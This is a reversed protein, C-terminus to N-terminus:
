QIVTEWNADPDQAFFLYAKLGSGGDMSVGNPKSATNDNLGGKFVVTMTKGRLAAPIYVHDSAGKDNRYTSTAGGVTDFTHKATAYQYDQKNNWGHAKYETGYELWLSGWSNVGKEFRLGQWEADFVCRNAWEPVKVTFENAFGGGGPFYEGGAAERAKLMNQASNDSTVRQRAYPVLKWKLIAMERIDTLMDQTITATSKPQDLRALPVYPQATPLSSVWAYENYPGKTKDAPEPGAYQDDKVRVILYRVAGASSSTEPVPVDTSSDEMVAYSQSRASPYDNPTVASGSLVRVFPGPTSLATVRMDAPQIIGRGGMTAAYLGLRAGEVDNEAGHGIAWPVPRLTM